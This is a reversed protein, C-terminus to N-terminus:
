FVHSLLWAALIPGVYGALAFALLWGLFTRATGTWGRGDQRAFFANVLAVALGAAMALQLPSAM